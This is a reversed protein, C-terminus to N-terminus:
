LRSLLCFIPTSRRTVNKVMKAMLKHSSEHISLQQKLEMKFTRTNDYIHWSNKLGTKVRWRDLKSLKFKRM